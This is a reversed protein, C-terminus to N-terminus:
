GVSCTRLTFGLRSYSVYSYICEIKRSKHQKESQGRQKLLQLFFFPKALSHMRASVSGGDKSVPAASYIHAACARGRVASPSM